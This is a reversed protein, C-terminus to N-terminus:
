PDATEVPFGGRRSPRNSRQRFGLRRRCVQQEAVDPRDGRHRPEHAVRAARQSQHARRPHAARAHFFGSRPGAPRRIDPDYVDQGLGDALTRSDAGHGGCTRRNWGCRPGGETGRTPEVDPRHQEQVDCLRVARVDSRIRRAAAGLVQFAGHSDSTTSRFTAGRSVACPFRPALCCAAISTTFPEQSITATTSQASAVIGSAAVFLLALVHRRM